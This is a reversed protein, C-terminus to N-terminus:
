LREYSSGSVASEPIILIRRNPLRQKMKQKVGSAASMDATCKIVALQGRPLLYRRAPATKRLGVPYGGQFLVWDFFPGKDLVMLFLRQDLKRGSKRERFFLHIGDVIKGVPPGPMRHVVGVAPDGRKGLYLEAHGALDSSCM